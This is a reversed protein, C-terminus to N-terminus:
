YNSIDNGRFGYLNYDIADLGAATQRPCSCGALTWICALVVVIILFKAIKM